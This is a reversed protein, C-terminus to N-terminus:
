VLLASPDVLVDPCLLVGLFVWFFEWEWVKESIYLDRNSRYTECREGPVWGSYKDEEIERPV